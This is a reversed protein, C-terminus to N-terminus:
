NVAFVEQREPLLNEKDTAKNCKFFGCPIMLADILVSSLM